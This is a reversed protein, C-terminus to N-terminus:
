LKSIRNRERMCSSVYIGIRSAAAYPNTLEGSPLCIMKDALKEVKGGTTIGLGVLTYHFKEGDKEKRQQLVTVVEDEATMNKNFSGCFGTDTIHIMYIRRGKAFKDAEQLMYGISLADKQGGSGSKPLSAVARLADKKTGAPTKAPHYIWRVIPGYRNRSVSGENYMGAMVQVTTRLTSNIWATTLIKLMHMKDSSMSGSGDCVILVLPKGRKDLVETNIFRKFIAESFQHGSLRGPDIMGSARLKEVVPQQETNPFINRKMKDTLPKAENVLAEVELLNFSLEYAQDFIQSRIMGLEGMDIEVDNSEAPSGEILGAEFPSMSLSELLIDSRLDEMSTSQGSAGTITRAAEALASVIKKIDEPLEGGGSGSSNNRLSQGSAPAISERIMRELDKMEGLAPPVPRNFGPFEESPSKPLFKESDAFGTDENLSSKLYPGSPPEHPLFRSIALSLDMVWSKGMDHFSAVEWQGIGSFYKASTLYIARFLKLTLPYLDLTEYFPMVDGFLIVARIIRPLTEFRLDNGSALFFRYADIAQSLGSRGLEEMILREAVTDSIAGFVEGFTEKKVNIGMRRLREYTRGELERFVTNHSNLAKYQVWATHGCAGLTALGSPYNSYCIALQAKVKKANDAHYPEGLMGFVKKVTDEVKQYFSKMAPIRVYYDLYQKFANSMGGARWNQKHNRRSYTYEPNIYRTNKM